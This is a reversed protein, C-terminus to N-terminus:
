PKIKFIQDQEFNELFKEDFALKGYVSECVRSTPDPGVDDFLPIISSAGRRGDFCFAVEDRAQGTEENFLNYISSSSYVQAGAETGKLVILYYTAVIQKLLIGSELREASGCKKNDSNIHCSQNENTHFHVELHSKEKGWTQGFVLESTNVNKSKVMSFNLEHTDGSMLYVPKYLTFYDSKEAEIMYNGPKLNKLKSGTNGTLEHVWSVDPKLTKGTEADTFTIKIEGEKENKPMYTDTVEKWEGLPLGGVQISRVADVYGDKSFVFNATKPMYKKLVPIEVEYYGDSNTTATYRASCGEYYASLSADGVGGNEDILVGVVNQNKYNNNKPIKQDMDFLDVEDIIETTEDIDIYIRWHVNGEVKPCQQCFRICELIDDVEEGSQAEFMLTDEDIRQLKKAAHDNENEDIELLVESYTMEIFVSKHTFTGDFITDSLDNVSSEYCFM